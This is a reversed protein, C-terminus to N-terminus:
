ASSHRLELELLYQKRWIGGGYGTLSGDKGIVRHCPIIIAFRNDGNARAVARIATPREIAEAQEQYSRTQGYPIARLAEWAAKQFPTGAVVLPLDFERRTGAFYESLQDRVSAFLPNAGPLLSVDLQSRVHDLQTELMRRDVFELLCLGEDNAVALMPGLPTQIRTVAAISCKRSMSPVFGVAKKFSDSFASLSEFGSGFAAAAVDDGDRIRGFAHSLRMLRQYAQFTMGHHKQFWRRVTAPELERERLNRDTIRIEPHACVEDILRLLWDPSHGPSGMPDCLKCPRYGFRLAQIPTSFFEVNERKPKRAACTPRCFIGTTKVAAVFVGAFQTDRKVLAAYLVDDSPLTRESRDTTQTFPVISSM